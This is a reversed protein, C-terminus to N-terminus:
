YTIFPEIAEYTAQGIGPVALVDERSAFSGNEERADLIRQALVPGIGPLEALEEEGAKNINVPTEAAPAAREPLSPGAATIEPAAAHETEIVVGGQARRGGSQGAFYGALFVLFALTLGILLGEWLRLSKM